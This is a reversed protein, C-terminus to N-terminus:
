DYNSCVELFRGNSTIKTVGGGGRLYRGYSIEIKKAGGGVVGSQGWIHVLSAFPNFEIVLVKKCNMVDM